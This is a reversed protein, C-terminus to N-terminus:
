VDGPSEPSVKVVGGVQSDWVHSSGLVSPQVLKMRGIREVDESRQEISMRKKGSIFHFRFGQEQAKSILWYYRHIFIRTEIKNVVGYLLNIKVKFVL